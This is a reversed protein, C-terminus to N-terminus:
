CTRRFQALHSKLDKICYLIKNFVSLGQIGNIGVRNGLLSNEARWFNSNRSKNKETNKDSDRIGM